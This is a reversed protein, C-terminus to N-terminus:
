ILASRVDVMEKNLKFPAIEMSFQKGPATPSFFLLIGIVSM